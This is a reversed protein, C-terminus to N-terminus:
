LRGYLNRGEIIWLLKEPSHLKLGLLKELKWKTNTSSIVEQKKRLSLVRLDTGIISIIKNFEQVPGDYSYRNM